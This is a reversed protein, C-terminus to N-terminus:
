EEGTDDNKPPDSDYDKTVVAVKKNKVAEQELREIESNAATVDATLKEQQEAMTKVQSALEDRAAVAEQLETRVQTLEAESTTQLEILQAAAAQQAAEAKEARDQQATAAALQEALQERLAALEATLAEQKEAAAQQVATLEERVGRLEIEMDDADEARSLAARYPMKERLTGDKATYWQTAGTTAYGCPNCKRVQCCNKTGGEVAPTLLIATALFLISKM